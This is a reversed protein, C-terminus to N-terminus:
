VEFAHLDFGDPVGTGQTGGLAYAHGTAFLGNKAGPLLPILSTGGVKLSVVQEAGIGSHFASAAERTGFVRGVVVISSIKSIVDARDRVGVGALKADTADGFFGDAGPAIGAILDSAVWDGGITVSGIQADANVATGLYSPQTDPSYGALIKANFASGQVQISKFALDTAGPTEMGGASIIVPNSTSGQLSGRVTLKGIEFTARIAGSNVLSGGADTVAGAFVSGGVTASGIHSAVIYGSDAVFTTAANGGIINGGVSIAGLTGDIRIMGSGSDTGGILSGGIVISKASGGTFIEGSEQGAGGQMQADIAISSYNGSTSFIAGARDGAGGFLAGALHIPGVNGGARVVGSGNGLGGVLAGGIELGKLLTEAVIAGSDNGNGGFVSGGIKVPGATPANIVGSFDREGGNLVGGVTVTGVSISAAVAGAGVGAGGTISGGINVAGLTGAGAIPTGSTPRFAYVVGSDQATHTADVFSGGALSGGITVPGIKQASIRGSSTGSGGFITGGVTVKGLTTAAFLDGSGEGAGGGIPGDITATGISGAQVLGSTKGSGGFIGGGIKLTTISGLAFIAGSNDASGGFLSGGITLSGIKGLPTGNQSAGFVAISAGAVDGAVHISGVAGLVESQLDPAGTTLGEVGLSLVSLSALGPDTQNDGADISGLDGRVVVAGFDIGANGPVNRGHIYGVNVVGDGHLHGDHDVDFPEATITLNTGDFEPFGSLNLVKLQEGTGTATAGFTFQLAGGSTLPDLFIGKTTKVTVLDGDGDIYTLAKGGPLLTAPAIRPELIEPASQPSM